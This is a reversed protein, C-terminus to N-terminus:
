DHNVADSPTTNKVATKNLMGLLKKAFDSTEPEPVSVNIPTTFSHLTSISQATVGLLLQQEGVQVLLLRERTGLPMASIIKMQSTKLWSGGGMHRAAWAFLLILVVIGILALLVTTIHQGSGISVTAAPEIPMTPQATVLVSSLLSLCLALTLKYKM